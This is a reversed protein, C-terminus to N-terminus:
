ESYKNVLDDGRKDQKKLYDQEKKYMETQEYAKDVNRMVEELDLNANKYGALTQFKEFHNIRARQEAEVRKLTDITTKLRARNFEEPLAPNYANRIIREGEREAFQGGLLARLSEQTVLRVRQEIDERRQGGPVNRLLVDPADARQLLTGSAKFDDTPDIDDYATQLIAINKQSQAFKAPDYDKLFLEDRKIQTKTLGGTASLRKTEALQQLYNAIDPNEVIESTGDPNIKRTFAGGAIDQFKTRPQLNQTLAQKYMNNIRQNELQRALDSRARAQNQMNQFGMANVYGQDGSSPDLSAKGAMNRGISYDMLRQGINGLRQAFTTPQQPQPLPMTPITMPVTPQGYGGIPQQLGMNPMQANPNIGTTLQVNPLGLLGFNNRNLLSM